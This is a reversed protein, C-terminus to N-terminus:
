AVGDAAKADGVDIALEEGHTSKAEVCPGEVPSAADEARHSPPMHQRRIANRAHRFMENAFVEYAVDPSAVGCARGLSSVAAHKYPIKSVIEEATLLEHSLIHETVTQAIERLVSSAHAPNVDPMADIESQSSKVVRSVFPHERLERCTSRALPDLALCGAVFSQFEESLSAGDLRLAHTLVARGDKHAESPVDSCLRGYLGWFPDDGGAVAVPHRGIALTVLTIGLSWVDAPLGYKEGQLREPSMFLTTGVFKSVLVHSPLTVLEAPLNSIDQGNDIALQL